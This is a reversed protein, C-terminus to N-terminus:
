TLRAASLTRVECASRLDELRTDTDAAEGDVSSPPPSRATGVLADNSSVLLVRARPFKKSLTRVFGTCVGSSGDFPFSRLADNYIVVDCFADARDHLV